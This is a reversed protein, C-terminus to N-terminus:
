SKGLYNQIVSSLKVFRSLPLIHSVDGRRWRLLAESTFLLIDGGSSQSVFCDELPSSSTFGDDTRGDRADTIKCRGGGGGSSIHFLIGVATGGRGAHVGGRGGGVLAAAAKAALENPWNYSQQQRVISKKGGTKQVERGTRGPGPECRSFDSIIHDKRERKTERGKGKREKGTCDKERWRCSIYITSRSTRGGLASPGEPTNSYFIMKPKGDSDSVYMVFLNNHCQLGNRPPIEFINEM